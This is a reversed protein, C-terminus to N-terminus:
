EDDYGELDAAAATSAGMDASSTSLTTQNSAIAKAKAKGKAKPRAIAKLKTLELERMSLEHRCDELKEGAHALNHSAETKMEPTAKELALMLKKFNIEAYKVTAKGIKIQAAKDAIAEKTKLLEVKAAEKGQRLQEAAAIAENCVDVASADSKTKIAASLANAENQLARQVMRVEALRAQKSQQDDPLELEGRLTKRVGDVAVTLMVTNAVIQSTMKHQDSQRAEQMALKCQRLKKEAADIVSHECCRQRKNNLDSRARAYNSQAVAFESPSDVGGVTSGSM